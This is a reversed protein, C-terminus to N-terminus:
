PGAQASARVIYSKWTSEIVANSDVFVTTATTGEFTVISDEDSVASYINYWPAGTSQWRLRIHPGIAWASLRTPPALANIEFNADSTDGVEPVNMGIIRLRANSTAPATPTWVWERESTRVTDLREWAGAPYNRNLEVLLTDPSYRYSWRTTCPQSSSWVEGGNPATLALSDGNNWWAAYIDSVDNRTDPWSSHFGLNSFTLGTYDGLFSRGQTELPEDTIRINPCWTEGGDTSITGYFAYDCNQPDDRRDCWSVAVDGTVPHVVIWPWWQFNSTNDDNLQLPASWTSGQNVSKSLFVNYDGGANVNAWAVYITGRHPGHTIDVAPVPYNTIRFGSNCNQDNYLLTPDCNTITIEPQFTLGGDLSKRFRMRELSLDIWTAYVEGLPGTALSLSIADAQSSVVFPTSFSEGGNISRTFYAHFGIWIAYLNNQYPSDPSLDCTMQPRDIQSNIQVVTAVTIPNSWTQGHDESKHLYFGDNPHSCVSAMYAAYMIGNADIAITPDFTFDCGAQAPGNGYFGHRWTVGGDTSCFYGARQAGPASDNSGVLLNDPDTPDAVIPCENQSRTTTDQNCRRNTGVDDLPSWPTREFPQQDALTLNPPAQHEAEEFAAQLNERQQETPDFLYSVGVLGAAFLSLVFGTKLGKVLPESM